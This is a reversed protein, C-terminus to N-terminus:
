TRPFSKEGEARFSLQSVSEVPVPNSHPYFHTAPFLGSDFHKIERLHFLILPEFGVTESSEGQACDGARSRTAIMNVVENARSETMSRFNGVRGQRMSRATTGKLRPRDSFDQPEISHNQRGSRDCLGHM